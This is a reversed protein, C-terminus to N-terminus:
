HGRRDKNLVADLRFVENGKTTIKTSDKTEMVQGEKMSVARGFRNEMGMKGDKFVHLTSGDKLEYSKAIDSMDAAFTCLSAVSTFAAFAIEKYM